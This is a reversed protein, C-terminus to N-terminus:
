YPNIAGLRWVISLVEHYVSHIRQLGKMARREQRQAAALAARKPGFLSGGIPDAWWLNRLHAAISATVIAAINSLVDNLHDEALAALSDSDQFQKCYYYLALKAATGSGLIVYMLVPAQIVLADGLALGRYLDTCSYQIVELSAM